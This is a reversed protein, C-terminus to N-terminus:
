FILTYLLRASRGPEPLIEKVRSIHNRYFRDTLNAVRLTFRHVVPGGALQVHGFVNYITFANTPEENPAVRDQEDTFRAEAGVGYRDTDWHVGAGARLPPIRPLPEGTEDDEAIVMDATVDLTLHEVLSIDAHAEAGYFLADTQVYTGTPLGVTNNPDGDLVNPDIDLFIFDTFDTRFVTVVGSFRPTEWRFGLDVGVSTEESLDPDGIEFTLNALHPGDAFLEEASPAKFNSTVNVPVSWSGKPHIIAGVAASGGSFDKEDGGPGPDVDQQDYRGGFQLRAGGLDVDEYFFAAYGTTEAFPLYAEAGTAQLESNLYWAGFTGSFRGVERHTLDARYEDTQQDFVTGVDGTDEFETHKYDHRIAQFRGGSFIGFDRALEGRLRLSEQQMRITIGHEGEEILEGEESVPIGYDSDQDRYAFGAYGAAGIYSLGGNFTTFDSQSNGATGGNFQYEGADSRWAGLHYGMSGLAGELDLGGTLEDTNTSAGFAVSGTPRDNLKAPVDGSLVNVVGGIANSGYLLNAAGRVVEISDAGMPNVTVAHDDSLFSVDGTRSGDELVLVRNGGLGRIVPRSSAQSLSTTTIGAENQLTTGLSPTGRFELQEGGVVNTPQYVQMADMPDPSTTVVVPEEHFRLDLVFDAEGNPVTVHRIQDAYGGATVSIAYTGAAVDEFVFTGEANTRALRRLEVLEVTAGVIPERSHEAIIKGKLSEAAALNVSAMGAGALSVIIMLSRARSGRAQHRRM